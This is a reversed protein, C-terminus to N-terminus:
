EQWDERRHGIQRRRSHLRVEGALDRLAAELEGEFVEASMSHAGMAEVTHREMNDSTVVLISAKQEAEAVLREILDDATKGRESFLVEIGHAPESGEPKHKAAYGDFVVTVRRRGHDAFQRLLGVLAERRQQLSSQRAKRTAFKPWAHLVSYGDVLVWRNSM